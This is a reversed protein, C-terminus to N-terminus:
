LDLARVVEVVHLHSLTTLLHCFVSPSMNVNHRTFNLGQTIQFISLLTYLRVQLHIDRGQIYRDGQINRDGSSKRFNETAKINETSNVQIYCDGQIYRDSAM